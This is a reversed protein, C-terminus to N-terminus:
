QEILTRRRYGYQDKTAENSDSNLSSLPWIGAGTQSLTWHLNFPMVEEGGEITHPEEAIAVVSNGTLEFFLPTRSQGTVLSIVLLLVRGVQGRLM